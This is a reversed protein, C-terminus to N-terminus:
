TKNVIKLLTIYELVLRGISGNPFNQYQKDYLRRYKTPM